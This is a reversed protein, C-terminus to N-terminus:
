QSAAKTSKVNTVNDFDCLANSEEAASLIIERLQPQGAKEM